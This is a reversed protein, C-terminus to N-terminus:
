RAWRLHGELGRPVRAPRARGQLPPEAGAVRPVAQRADGDIPAAGEHVAARDRRYWAASTGDAATVIASDYHALRFWRQDVHPVIGEPAESSLERPPRVQRALGTLAMALKGPFSQPNPVGKGKRPPRKMRPTPFADLSQESQGDVYEKVMSRLRPLRTAMDRHMREPGALVDELALMIIDATGYQMSMLRATHNKMSEGVMRGGHEYPSHLLASILRNREHFYAQWDLTDDKETWPVHWVAAGPLTATPFGAKGARLGFEADDWKIFMPLSMGIERVVSTPVLCMWWGTYDVDVRRHLWPTSRLPRRAWDHSHKTHPAPGWFWTWKSLAEGYAHMVTRDYLSFMHGGVITPRTALDSFAVARKIGELECVVDDDLLLVYDSAGRQVTEFMARSFGGSGGLNPQDIIRLRDGLVKKAQAYKETEVVKQNGQDVVIVEDLIALTSPDKSLAVLQDACFDPRNFTTIGITVTGSELRDSEIMWEADELVLKGAGAELDFWYWGGDIFPELSLDLTETTASDSKVQISGTRLVHGRSTSRYVILTGEGRLRTM